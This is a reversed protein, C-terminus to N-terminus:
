CNTRKLKTLKVTSYFKQFHPQLTVQMSSAVSIAAFNKRLSFFTNKIIKSLSNCMIIIVAKFFIYM